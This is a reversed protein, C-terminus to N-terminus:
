KEGAFHSPTAGRRRRSITTIFNAGIRYGRDWCSRYGIAAVLPDEHGESALQRAHENTMPKAFKPQYREADHSLSKAVRLDAASRQEGMIDAVEKDHSQSCVSRIEGGTAQRTAM